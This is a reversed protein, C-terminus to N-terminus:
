WDKTFNRDKDIKICNDYVCMIIMQLNEKIVPDDEFEVYVSVDGNKKMVSPESPCGPNLNFPYLAFGGTEFDHLDINPTNAGDDIYNLSEFMNMYTKEDTALARKSYPMGNVQVEMKKVSYKGFYFPTTNMEGQKASASIFGVIMKAPLRGKSVDITHEKEKANVPIAKTVIRKIPYCAPSKKLTTNIEDMAKESVHVYPVYMRADKIKIMYSDVPVPSGNKVERTMLFFKPKALTLKVKVEVGNLLYREQNFLESHLKGIMGHATDGFHRARKGFGPNLKPDVNNFAGNRYFNQATMYSDKQEQSTDFLDLIYSSFPHLKNANTVEVDNLFVTCDEFISHLTNNIPAVYNSVQKGDITISGLVTGDKKLIQIKVYLQSRNLDVLSKEGGARITFNLETVDNTLVDDCPFEDWLVKDVHVNEDCDSFLDLEAYDRCRKM